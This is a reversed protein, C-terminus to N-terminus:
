DHLYYYRGDRIILEIDDNYVDMQESSLEPKVSTQNSIKQALDASLDKYKLNENVLAPVAAVIGEIGTKAVRNKELEIRLVKVQINHWQELRNRTQVAQQLYKNYISYCMESSVGGKGLLYTLAATEKLVTILVNQHEVLMNFEDVRELYEKYPPNPNKDSIDAITLNVQGLLENANGELGELAILKRSRTEDDELIESSFESIKGVRAVLSLIRSKFERDQFDGIRNISDNMKDLKNSIDTMYYQGVVLSGVNMVNTVGNAVSTAKSLKSASAVKMLNAHGQIGDAGHYIGRVAGAMAQSNALTAGSPIIARYIDTNKIAADAVTKAAANAVAPLTQSIRSIVTRDTIEFLRSEKVETTAPLQEITIPVVANNVAETDSVL